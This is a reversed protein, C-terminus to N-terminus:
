FIDAAGVKNALQHRHIDGTMVFFAATSLGTILLGAVMMWNNLTPAYVIGEGTDKAFDLILNGILFSWWWLVILPPGKLYQGNVPGYSAIWIDRLAQYPKYLSAIPVFFWGVAWGPTSFKAAPRLVHANRCAGYVWCLSVVGGIFLGIVFLLIAVVGLLTVPLSERGDALMSLIIALAWGAMGAMEVGMLLRAWFTLKILPKFVYVRAQKEAM